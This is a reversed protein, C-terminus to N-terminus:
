AVLAMISIDVRDGGVDGCRVGPVEGGVPPRRLSSFSGSEMRTSTPRQIVSEHAFGANYISDAFGTGV